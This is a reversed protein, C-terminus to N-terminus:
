EEETLNPLNLVLEKEIVEENGDLRTLWLSQAKIREGVVKQQFLGLGSGVYENFNEKKAFKSKDERYKKFEVFLEGLNNVKIEKM